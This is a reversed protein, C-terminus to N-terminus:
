GGAFRLTKHREFEFVSVYTKYLYNMIEGKRNNKENRKNENIVLHM